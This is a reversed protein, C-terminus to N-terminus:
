LEPTGGGNLDMLIDIEVCGREACFFFQSKLDMGSPLDIKHLNLSTGRDVASHECFFVRRLRCAFREGDARFGIAM